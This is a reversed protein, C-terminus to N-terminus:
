SVPRTANIGLLVDPPVAKVKLTAAISRVETETEPLPSYMVEGWEPRNSGGAAPKAQVSLGRFPYGAAQGAALQVPPKNQKYATYRPDQDSFVPNGIAFLPQRAKAARPQRNLALTSASHEYTIIWRDDLFAPNSDSNERAPRLAGFPM